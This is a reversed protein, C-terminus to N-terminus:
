SATSLDLARGQFQQVENLGHKVLPPWINLQVIGSDSFNRKPYVVDLM